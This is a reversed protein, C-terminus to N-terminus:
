FRRLRRVVLKITMDDAAAAIAASDKLVIKFDEQVVLEDCIPINITSNVFASEHSGGQTFNYYRTLSAAQTSGAPFEIIQNDDEDTIQLVIQRNGVDGSSVFTVGCYLIEYVYQRDQHQQQYNLITNWMNMPLHHHQM